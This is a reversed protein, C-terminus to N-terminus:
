KLRNPFVVAVSGEFTRLRQVQNHGDTLNALEDSPHDQGYGEVVCADWQESV